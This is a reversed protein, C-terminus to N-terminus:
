KIAGGTRVSALAKASEIPKRTINILLMGVSLLVIGVVIYGTIKLFGFTGSLFSGVSDGVDALDSMITTELIIGYKDLYNRLEVTNGDADKGARKEWGTVFLSNAHKKGFRSRLAKHWEIWKNGTSKGTPIDLIFNKNAM